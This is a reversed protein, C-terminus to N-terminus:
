PLLVVQYFARGQPPASDTFSGAGTVTSLTLWPGAPSTARRIQFSLGPASPWTVTFGGSGRTAAARFSSAGSKPDLGLRFETLNSTGDSDPDADVSANATTGGFHQYQWQSYPALTSTVVLDVQGPTTTVVTASFGPPMLAVSLGNNTLSGTHNILRYTGAAFGVGARVEISGALTVDGTVTLLDKTTGLDFSVLAGDELTLGNSFSLSGDPSLNGSISAPAAITGSGSLLSDPETLLSLSTLSGDVELSAGEGVNVLPSNSLTGTLLIGGQEITSSGAFGCNGSLTWIGAGTKVLHTLGGTQESLTGAFTADSDRGGIRYTLQRGSTPGGRLTSTTTGSLEGISVFTGNGTNLIGSYYASIGPGLSLAATPLGPWNYDLAMRFDATGSATTANIRGSFGAWNGRLDARISGSPLVYNLTGAGTLTGTLSSRWAPNFTATAGAPVILDWPASITANNSSSSMGLTGGNLTVDGSGLASANAGDNGFTIRGANLIVPGAFNNANSLTLTGSGSKVLSMQGTLSGTGSLSYNKSSNSITVSEPELQGVLNLSTANSGTDDLTVRDGTGFATPSASRLFSSTSGLDWTNATSNSGGKWVLSRGSSPPPPPFAPLELSLYDYMVHSSTDSVNQSFTFTNTGVKLKSVPISVTVFSYKAHIGQRLLANGGNMGPSIRTFASADDNITLYLRAYNSSAVAVTLTANGVSPVASLNFNLKWNWSGWTTTGNVITPYGSHVYNFDTAPSSTGINYILPNPLETPYVEWLYPKFYDNGHKFEAASRDPEGIEWALSAGSRPITWTLPGLATTGGATVTISTKSFEGVAGDLFAYLTYTGPRVAPLSFNGSADAKAWYQYGKSQNQWNGHTAEPAALGIQANAGTLSPKLVDNVLLQGTVTGRASAAPHDSTSLWSYPWASKEAAVQAQADAWLANGANSTATTSNCYLLFPGYLKRWSEGAAVSTSSGAYHNRGFHMLLYSESLTLDQKTPGDNFYDHGGLVFWVGKRAINSALGWTGIESYRASYSYKGDLLGARVGTTLKVIEAIGTPQSQQYDFYSAMQWNRAADVYAREFTFTTSTRPLKWVIRWEGVAAAPYTSPHDLIAFAYLGTDGRRLVYHLDIDFVHKYGSTANWTRKCSIEIHSTSSSVLSYVCGSPQEYNTGGDMSYYIPNSPDVMQTGNLTYSTVRGTSKDIVANIVGNSLTATTSTTTLTVNAGVGAAGGGPDNARALYTLGCAALAMAVIRFLQQLRLTMIM